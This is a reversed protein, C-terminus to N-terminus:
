IELQVKIDSSIILLQMTYIASTIGIGNLNLLM